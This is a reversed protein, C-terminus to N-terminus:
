TSLVEQGNIYVKSGEPIPPLKLEEQPLDNSYTGEAERRYNCIECIANDSGDSLIYDIYGGYAKKVHLKGQMGDAVAFQIVNSDVVYWGDDLLMQMALLDKDDKVRIIKQM